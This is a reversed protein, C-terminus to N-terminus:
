DEEPQTLRGLAAVVGPWWVDRPDQLLSSLSRREGSAEDYGVRLLETALKTGPRYVFETTLRDAVRRLGDLDVGDAMESWLRTRIPDQEIAAVVARELRRSLALSLQDEDKSVALIPGPGDPHSADRLEVVTTAPERLVVEWIRLTSALRDIARGHGVGDQDDRLLGWRRVREDVMHPRSVGLYVGSVDGWEPFAAALTDQTTGVWGSDVVLVREVVGIKSEIYARVRERQQTREYEIWDTHAAVAAKLRARNGDTNPTSESVNAAEYLTRELWPSLGFPRMLRGLTEKGKRGAVGQMSDLMGGPHALTVVRRSLRIYATSRASIASTGGLLEGVRHMLYADRAIYLVRESGRQAGIRRVVAHFIVLLPMLVTAGFSEVTSVDCPQMARVVSFLANAPNTLLARDIRRSLPLRRPLWLASVGSQLARQLDARADDGIHLVVASPGAQAADRIRAFLTGAVKSAGAESSSLVVDLDIGFHHLLSRVMDSTAWTDSTAVVVVGRRRASQLEAWVELDPAYVREAVYHWTREVAEMLADEQVDLREALDNAWRALGWEGTGAVSHAHRSREWTRRHEWTEKFSMRSGVLECTTHLHVCELESIRTPSLRAILLTDFVDTSVVGPRCRRIARRVYAPYYGFLVPSPM